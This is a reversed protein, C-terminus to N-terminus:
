AESTPLHPLRLAFVNQSPKENKVLDAVALQKGNLADTATEWWHQGDPQNIRVSWALRLKTGQRVFILKAPIPDSSLGDAGFEIQRDKGISPKRVVLRSTVRLGLGNAADVVGQAASRKPSTTNVRTALHPLFTGTLNIIRGDAALNIGIDATSVEIGRFRQRLYVHTTGTDTDTYSSTVLVDALDTLELGSDAAHDRLYAKAIDVPQGSNPGTLFTGALPLPIRVTPENASNGATNQASANQLEVFGLVALVLAIVVGARRRNPGRHM